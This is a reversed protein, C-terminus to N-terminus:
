AVVATGHNLDAIVSSAEENKSCLAFDALLMRKRSDGTRAIPTVRYNRLYSIAWYETDLIFVESGSAGSPMFRNPTITFM